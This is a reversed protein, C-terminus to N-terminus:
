KIPLDIKITTGVSVQSKVNITGHLKDVWEHVISLGLGTGPIQQNRAKNVRYFRDFIQNQANSAIGLGTDKVSIKIRQGIREVRIRLLGNKKNYKIANSILNSLIQQLPELYYEIQLNAMLELRLNKTEIAQSQAKLITQVVQDVDIKVLPLVKDEIKIVSLIDNTLDLLRKSEHAIIDLFERKVEEPMTQDDLLTDTFGIISTLPTKLEHSVNALFKTQQFQAEILDTVDYFAIVVTDSQMDSRYYEMTLDLFKAKSGQELTIMKHHNGKKLIGREIFAILDHYNLLDDYHHGIVEDPLQLAQRATPNIRLIQRNTTIEIIGVPMDNWVTNLINENHLSKQIQVQKEQQLRNVTQALPALRHRPDLIINGREGIQGVRNNFESLAQDQRYQMIASILGLIIALILEVEIGMSLPWAKIDANLKLIIFTCFQLIFFVILMRWFWQRIYKWWKQMNNVKRRALDTAM